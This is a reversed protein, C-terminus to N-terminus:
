RPSVRFANTEPMGVVRVASGVHWYTLIRARERTGRGIKKPPTLRSVPAIGTSGGCRYAVMPRTVIGSHLGAPDM